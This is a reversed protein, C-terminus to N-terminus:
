SRAGMRPAWLVAEQQQRGGTFHGASSWRQGRRRRRRQGSKSATSSDAMIRAGTSRGVCLKSEVAIQRPSVSSICRLVHASIGGFSSWSICCDLGVQVLAQQSYAGFEISAFDEDTRLTNLQLAALCAASSVVSVSPLLWRAGSM